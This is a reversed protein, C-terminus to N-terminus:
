YDLIAHSAILFDNATSQNLLSSLRSGAGDQVVHSKYLTRFTPNGFIYLVLYVDNCNM